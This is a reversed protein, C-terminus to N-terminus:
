YIIESSYHYAFVATKVGNLVAFQKTQVTIRERLMNLINTTIFIQM